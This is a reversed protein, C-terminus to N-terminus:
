VPQERSALEDAVIEAVDLFRDVAPTRNLSRALLRVELTAPPSLEIWALGAPLGARASDSVVAVARGEAVPTQPLDFAVGRFEIQPELGQDAFLAIVADYHGPNAQRPHLLVPEDALDVRV